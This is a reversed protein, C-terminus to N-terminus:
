ASRAAKSIRASALLACRTFEVEARVAPLSAQSRRIVVSLRHEGIAVGKEDESPELGFRLEVEYFFRTADSSGDPCKSAVCAARFRASFAFPRAAPPKDGHTMKWLVGDRVAWWADAHPEVASPLKTPVTGSYSINVLRLPGLVRSAHELRLCFSDKDRTHVPTLVGCTPKEAPSADHVEGGEAGEGAAAAVALVAKNATELKAQLLQLEEQHAQFEYEHQMKIDLLTATVEKEQESTLGQIVNEHNSTM